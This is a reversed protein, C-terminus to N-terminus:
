AQDINLAERLLEKQRTISQLTQNIEKVKHPWQARARSRKWLSVPALGPQLSELDSQCKPLPSDKKRLSELTPWLTLPRSSTEAREALDKLKTLTNQLDKINDAAREMDEKANKVAKGYKYARTIVDQSIQIVAIISAVLGIETM